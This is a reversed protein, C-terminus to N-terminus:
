FPRRALLEKMDALEAELRNSQAVLAELTAKRREWASIKSGNPNTPHLRLEQKAAAAIGDPEIM